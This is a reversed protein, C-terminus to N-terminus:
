ILREIDDLLVAGGVYANEYNEGSMVNEARIAQIKLMLDARSTAPMTILERIADWTQCVAEDFQEQWRYYELVRYAETRREDYARRLGLLERVRDTRAPHLPWRSLLRELEFAHWEGKPKQGFIPKRLCEPLQAIAEGENVAQDLRAEALKQLSARHRWKEFAKTITAGKKNVEKRNPKRASEPSHNLPPSALAAVASLSMFLVNRRNPQATHARRDDHDTSTSRTPSECYATSLRNKSM